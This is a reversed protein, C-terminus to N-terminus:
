EGKWIGILCIILLMIALIIIFNFAVLGIKHLESPADTIIIGLANNYLEGLKTIFDYM